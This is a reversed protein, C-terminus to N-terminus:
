VALPRIVLRRPTVLRPHSHTAGTSVHKRKGGPSSLNGFWVQRSMLVHLHKTQETVASVGRNRRGALVGVAAAAVNSVFWM